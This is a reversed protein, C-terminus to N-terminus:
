IRYLIICFFFFSHLSPVPCQMRKSGPQPQLLSFTLRSFWCPPSTLFASRMSLKTIVQQSYQAPSRTSYRAPSRTSYRAPSRTSHRTDLTSHRTDLTSHLFSRAVLPLRGTRKKLKQNRKINSTILNMATSLHPRFKM